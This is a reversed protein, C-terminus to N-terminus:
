FGLWSNTYYANLIDQTKESLAEINNIAINSIIGRNDKYLMSYRDKDNNKIDAIFADRQRLSWSDWDKIFAALHKKPKAENLSENLHTSLGKM